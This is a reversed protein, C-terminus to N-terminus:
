NMFRIVQDDELLPSFCRGNMSVVPVVVRWDSLKLTKGPFLVGLHLGTTPDTVDVREDEALWFVTAEDGDLVISRLKGGRSTKEIM